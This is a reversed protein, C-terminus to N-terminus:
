AAAGRWLVAGGGEQHYGSIQARMEDLSGWFSSIQSAYAAVADQWATVALASLGQVLGPHYASVQDRLDTHLLPDDVAYPYDAYFWLPIQLTEAAARVLRHDVHGGLTMPSVLRSDPPLGSAIWDAIKAVLYNEGPLYPRFLDDRDRITPAGDEPLRRSICDPQSAYRARAGLIRCAAEDEARRMAAANAGPTGWRAHLEEAFPSYPPPPPDGACITWVDVTEGAMVLEWIMGGASLVADDLHPSLFVWHM